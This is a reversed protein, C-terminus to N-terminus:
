YLKWAADLKQETLIEYVDIYRRAVEAILEVPAAPLEKDEYPKCSKVYWLRIIEKDFSEPELGENLRHQYNDLRWYRSSDPTLCEDVLIIKGQSDQGFEFKTDALILGRELALKSAFEFLEIAKQSIYEWQAPNIYDAHALDDPTLPLDHATSKTTPTVIARELQSNKPLGESLVTNFFQRQGKRYLTWLSTNTTGTLFGRVIVELPFVKCKKVRMSTSSPLDILHNGIIHRTKTFWWASLQNLVEGKFPITAIPRDFASLRNTSVLLLEQGLDYIDRVKGSYKPHYSYCRHAFPNFLITRSMIREALEAINGSESTIKWLVGRKLAQIDLQCDQQLVQLKQAEIMDQHERVLFALSHPGLALDACQEKNPQFLENSDTIKKLLLEFPLDSKLEWHIFKEVKVDIGMAQLAKQLTIAENDKILMQVKLEHHGAALHYVPITVPSLTLDLPQAKVKQQARIYERMSAFIGDGNPTREPHPMLALVNGAANSIGAINHMSGNPNIPFADIIKGAPDSYYWIEANAQELAKLVSDPIIFRGEAHAVPIHLPQHYHRNFVGTPKPKGVIYCWDNYFGTGLVKGERMRKNHTIAMGVQRSKLGPVLGSEVLIQAGNCLGLVPKGAEAQEAIKDMISDKSAILGSRCRDEYSFGGIIVYADYRDLEALDSNWLVDVAKMGAREIALRTERECNSGPFQIIATTIM